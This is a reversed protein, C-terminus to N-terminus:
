MGQSSGPPGSGEHVGRGRVITTVISLAIGIGFLLMAVIRELLSDRFLVHIGLSVVIVVIIVNRLQVFFFRIAGVNKRSSLLRGRPDLDPQWWKVKRSLPMDSSRDSHKM